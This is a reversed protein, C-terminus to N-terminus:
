YSLFTGVFAFYGVVVALLACGFGPRESNGRDFVAGLVALVCLLLVFGCGLRFLVDAVATIWSSHNALWADVDDLSFGFVWGALALVLAILFIVACLQVIRGFRGIFGLLAGLWSFM